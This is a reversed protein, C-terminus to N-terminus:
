LWFLTVSVSLTAILIVVHILAMSEGTAGLFRVHELSANRGCEYIKDAADWYLSLYGLYSTNGQCYYAM